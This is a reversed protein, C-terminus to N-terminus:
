ILLTRWNGTSLDYGGTLYKIEWEEETRITLKHPLLKFIWKKLSDTLVNDKLSSHRSKLSNGIYM